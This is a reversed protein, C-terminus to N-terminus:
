AALAQNWCRVLSFVIVAPPLAYDLRKLRAFILFAYTALPALLPFLDPADTLVTSAALEHHARPAPGRGGSARQPLPHDGMGAAHPLQTQGLDGNGRSLVPPLHDTKRRRQRRHRLWGNRSQQRTALAGAAARVCQRMGDPGLGSAFCARYANKLGRRQQM